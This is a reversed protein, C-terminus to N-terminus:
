AGNRLIRIDTVIDERLHKKVACLAMTRTLARDYKEPFDPAVRLVLDIRSMLGNEGREIDLTLAMGEPDLGREDCFSKAYIGACTAISALFLEFPEPATGDGGNDPSQDTPIHRGKVRAHVQKKGPFEVEVLPM